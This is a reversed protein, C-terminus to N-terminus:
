VLFLFSPNRYKKVGNNFRDGGNYEANDHRYACFFRIMYDVAFQIFGADHGINKQDGNVETKRRQVQKEAHDRGGGM